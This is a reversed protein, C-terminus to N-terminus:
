WTPRAASGRNHDLLVCGLSSDQTQCPPWCCAANGWPGALLAEPCGSIGHVQRGVARCCMPTALRAQTDPQVQLGLRSSAVM